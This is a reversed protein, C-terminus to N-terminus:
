FLIEIDMLDQKSQVQNLKVDKLWRPSNQMNNFNKFRNVNLSQPSRKHLNDKKQGNLTFSDIDDNREGDEEIDNSSGIQFTKPKLVNTAVRKKKNYRLQRTLREIEVLSNFSYQITPEVLQLLRQNMIKETEDQDESLALNEYAEYLKKFKKETNYKQRVGLQSKSSMTLRLADDRKHQLDNQILNHDYKVQNIKDKVCVVPKQLYNFVKRQTKNFIVHKIKEIEQVKSMIVLIDMDRLIMNRSKEFLQSQYNVKSNKKLSSSVQKAIFHVGFSLKKRSELILQIILTLFKKKDQELYFTQNSEHSFQLKESQLNDNQTELRLTIQNAIEEDVKDTQQVHQNPFKLAGALRTLTILRHASTKFKSVVDEISKLSEFIKNVLSEFSFVTEGKKKEPMDFQYLANALKIQLGAQNYKLIFYGLITALFQTIGGVYSFLEDFRYYQKYYHMESQSLRIFFSAVKTINSTFVSSAQLKNDMLSFVSDVELDKIGPIVSKEISLQQQELFVDTKTELGIKAQVYYDSYIYSIYNSQMNLNPVRNLILTNIKFSNNFYGLQEFQQLEPSTYCDDSSCITVQIKGYQFINSNYTGQIQLSYNLPLCQYDSLQDRLLKNYTNSEDFEVFHSITCQELNYSQTQTKTMNGNEDIMQVYSTLIFNFLRKTGNAIPSDAQFAMMFDSFQLQTIPPDVNLVKNSSITFTEKQILAIAGRTFIVTLVFVLIITCFGGFPSQHTEKKRFNLKVEAGFRDFYSLCTLVKYLM